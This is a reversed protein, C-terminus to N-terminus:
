SSGSQGDAGESKSMLAQLVQRGIVTVLQIVIGCRGTGVGAPRGWAQPPTSCAVASGHRGCGTHAWPGRPCKLVREM